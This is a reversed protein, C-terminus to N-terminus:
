ASRRDHGLVELKDDEIETTEDKNARTQRSVALREAGVLLEAYPLPVPQRHGPALELGGIRASRGSRNEVELIGNRQLLALYCGNASFSPRAKYYDGVIVEGGEKLVAPSNGPSSLREVVHVVNNVLLDDGVRMADVPRSMRELDGTQDVGGSRRLIWVLVALGIIAIAFLSPVFWSRTTLKKSGSAPSVNATPTPVAAVPVSLLTSWEPSEVLLKVNERDVEGNQKPIVRVFFRVDNPALQEDKLLQLVSMGRYREKSSVASVDSTFLFVRPRGSNRAVSESTSLAAVWDPRGKVAYTSSLIQGLAIRSLASLPQDFAPHWGQGLRYVTVQEGDPLSGCLQRSEVLLSPLFSKSTTDIMIVTGANAVPVTILLAFVAVLVVCLWHRGRM